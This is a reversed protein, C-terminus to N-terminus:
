KDGIVPRSVPTAQVPPPYARAIEACKATYDAPVAEFGTLKWLTMLDRGRENKNANIM